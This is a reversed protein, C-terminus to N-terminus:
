RFPSFSWLFYKMILRWLLINGVEAPTSGAVAQDGTPRRMWSLWRSQCQIGCGNNGYSKFSMSLYCHFKSAPDNLNKVIDTLENGDMNSRCLKHGDGDSDIFFMLRFYLNQVFYYDLHSCSWLSCVYYNDSFKESM